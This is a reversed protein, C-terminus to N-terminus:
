TGPMEFRVGNIWAVITHEGVTVAYFGLEAIREQAILAAVRGGRWLDAIRDATNISGILTVM